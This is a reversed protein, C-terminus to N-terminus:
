TDSNKRPTSNSEDEHDFIKNKIQCHYFYNIVLMLM